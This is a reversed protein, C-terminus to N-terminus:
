RRSGANARRNTSSRESRNPDVLPLGHVVNPLAGSDLNVGVCGREGNM